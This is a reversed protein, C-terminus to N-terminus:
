PRFLVMIFAGLYAPVFYGAFHVIVELYMYTVTINCEEVLVRGGITLIM